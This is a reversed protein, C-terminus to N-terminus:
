RCHTCLSLVGVSLLQMTRRRRRRRRTAAARFIHLFILGRRNCWQHGYPKTLIRTPTVSPRGCVSTMMWETASASHEWERASNRMKMKGKKEELKRQRARRLLYAFQSSPATVKACLLSQANWYAPIAPRNRICLSAYIFVYVGVGKDLPTIFISM